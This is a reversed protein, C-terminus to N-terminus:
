PAGAKGTPQAVPAAKEVFFEDFILRGEVPGGDEGTAGGLEISRVSVLAPLSEAASVTSFISDFSGRVQAEVNRRAAKGDPLGPVAVLGLKGTKAESTQMGKREGSRALSALLAGQDPSAPLTRGRRALEGRLREINRQMDRLSDQRAASELAVARLDRAERQWASARLYNPITFLALVALAVVVPLVAAISRQGLLRKVAPSM